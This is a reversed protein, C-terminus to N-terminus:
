KDDVYSGTFVDGNSFTTAGLGSRLGNNWSGIYTYFNPCVYTGNGNPRDGQIQGTYVGNTCTKHVFNFNQGFFHLNFSNEIAFDAVRVQVYASTCRDPGFIVAVCFFPALIEFLKM